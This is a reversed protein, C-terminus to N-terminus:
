SATLYDAQSQNASDRRSDVLVAARAAAENAADNIAEM